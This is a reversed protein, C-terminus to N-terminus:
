TSAPNAMRSVAALLEPTLNVQGISGQAMREIALALLIEPRAERYPDLRRRTAESEAQAQAVTNESQAEILRSRDKELQLATESEYRQIERENKASDMRRDAVAKDARALSREREIAGIADALKQNQSKIEDISVAQVQFGLREFEARGEGLREAVAEAIVKVGRLAQSITSENVLARVLPRLSARAHDHAKDLGDKRYRGTGSDVSLDYLDLAKPPDITLRLEGAVSVDQDDSTREVFIFPIAQVSAPVIAITTRPGVWFSLGRGQSRLRGNVYRAVHDNPGAHRFYKVGLM